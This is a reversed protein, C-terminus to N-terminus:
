ISLTLKDALTVIMIPTSIVLVMVLIGARLIMASAVIALGDLTLDYVRQDLLGQGRFLGLGVLFVRLQHLPDILVSCQSNTGVGVQGFLRDLRH